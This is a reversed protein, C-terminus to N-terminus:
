NLLNEIERYRRAYKRLLHADIRSLDHFVIEAPEDSFLVGLKTGTEELLRRLKQRNVSQDIRWEADLVM